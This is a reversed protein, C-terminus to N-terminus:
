QKWDKRIMLQEIHHYHHRCHWAYICINEKLSTEKKSEPHIFTKNLDDESLGQILYVWKAHLAKLADLSLQIPASKSDHLEAFSVENYAKIVPNQETLAWKFRLYSNHHSDYCHHIVQRITWGNERYPIEIQNDSLDRVLFELEHPFRELLSIWEELNKKTISEPIEVKGIPYRLKELSM